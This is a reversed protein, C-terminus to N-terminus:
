TVYQQIPKELKYILSSQLFNNVIEDKHELKSFSHVPTGAYDLLERLGDDSSDIYQQLEDFDTADQIQFCYVNM